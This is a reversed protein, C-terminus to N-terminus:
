SIASAETVDDIRLKQLVNSALLYLVAAVIGIAVASYTEVTSCGPTIAVLAALIGNNMVIPCGYRSLLRSYMFCFLGGFAGSITLNVAVRAVTASSNGGLSLTSGCSLGYFGIWILLTGITQMADSQRCLPAFSTDSAREKRPGLAICGVLAFVGASVSLIGGGGFDILGVDLFRNAFHTASAWGATTQTWHYLLPYSISSILISYGLSAYVHTREAMSGGIIGVIAAITTWQYLWTVMSIGNEIKMDVSDFASGSLFFGSDGSFAGGSDSSLAHGLTYFSVISACLVALSKSIIPATNNPSVCGIELFMFGVVFLLVIVASILTWFVDLAMSSAIGSSTDSTLQQTLSLWTFDKSQGDIWLTVITDDTIASM